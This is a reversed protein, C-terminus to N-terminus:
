KLAHRCCMMEICGQLPHKCDPIVSLRVTLHSELFVWDFGVEIALRLIESNHEVTRYRGQLQVSRGTSFVRLILQGTLTHICHTHCACM